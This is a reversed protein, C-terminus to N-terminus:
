YLWHSDSNIIIHVHYRHHSHKNSYHLMSDDLPSLVVCLPITVLVGCSYMRTCVLLMCTVYLYCVLLSYCVFLMRTCILLMRTCVLYMGNVYPYFVLVYSYFVLLFSNNTITSQMIHLFIWNKTPFRKIAQFGLFDFGLIMNKLVLYCQLNSFRMRGSSNRKFDTTILTSKSLFLTLHLVFIHINLGGGGIFARTEARATTIQLLCLCFVFLIM